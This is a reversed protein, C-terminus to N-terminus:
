EIDTPPGSELQRIRGELEALRRSLEEVRAPPPDTLQRPGPAFGPFFPRMWDFPTVIPAVTRSGQLNELTTLSMQLFVRLFELALDNARLM